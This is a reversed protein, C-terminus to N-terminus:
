DLVIEVVTDCHEFNAEAYRWKITNAEAIFIGLCNFEKLNLFFFTKRSSFFFNKTFFFFTEKM